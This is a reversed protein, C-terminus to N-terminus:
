VPIVLSLMVPGVANVLCFEGMSHFASPRMRMGMAPQSCQYTPAPPPESM